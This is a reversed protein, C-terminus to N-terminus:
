GTSLSSSRCLAVLSAEESLAVPLATCSRSIRMFKSSRDFESSEEHSRFSTMTPCTGRSGPPTPTTASVNLRDSRSARGRDVSSAKQRRNRSLAPLSLPVLVHVPCPSAGPSMSTRAHLAERPTDATPALAAGLPWWSEESSLSVTSAMTRDDAPAKLRSCVSASLASCNWKSVPAPLAPHWRICIHDLSTTLVTLVGQFM